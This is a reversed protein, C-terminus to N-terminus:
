HEHRLMEPLTPFSCGCQPRLAGTMHTRVHQRMKAKTTTAYDCRTCSVKKAKHMNSRHSSLEKLNNFTHGCTDCSYPRDMPHQAWLHHFLAMGSPLDMQCVPCIRPIAEGKHTLPPHAEEEAVLLTDPDADVHDQTPNLCM